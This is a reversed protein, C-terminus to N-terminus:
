KVQQIRHKYFVNDQSYILISFLKTIGYVIVKYAAYERDQNPTELHKAQFTSLFRTHM